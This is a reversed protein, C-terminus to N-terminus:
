GVCQPEQQRGIRFCQRQHEALHVPRDRAVQDALGAESTGGARGAGDGEHLTEARRQIQIHVEM